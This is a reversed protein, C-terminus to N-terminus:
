CSRCRGALEAQVAEHKARAAATGELLEAYKEDINSAVM